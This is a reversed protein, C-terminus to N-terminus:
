KLGLARLLDSNCSFIACTITSGETFHHFFHFDGLVALVRAAEASLHVWVFLHFSSHYHQMQKLIGHLSAAHANPRAFSAFANHGSASPNVGCCSSSRNSRGDPSQPFNFFLLNNIKYNLFYFWFIQACTKIWYTHKRWFKFIGAM